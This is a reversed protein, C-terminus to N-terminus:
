LYAPCDWSHSVGDNIVGAPHVPIRSVRYCLRTESDVLSALIDRDRSSHTNLCHNFMLLTTGM